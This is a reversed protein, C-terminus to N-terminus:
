AGNNRLRDPQEATPWPYAVGRVEASSYSIPHRNSARYAAASANWSCRLQDLGCHGVCVPPSALCRSVDDHRERAEHRLMAHSDLLLKGETWGSTHTGGSKLNAWRAHRVALEQIGPVPFAFNNPEFEEHELLKPAVPCGLRLLRGLSHRMALAELREPIAVSALHWEIRLHSVRCLAGSTLLFPLLTYELGEVDLKLYALTKEDTTEPPMVARLYSSFDITRVRFHAISANLTADDSGESPETTASKTAGHRGSMWVEGDQSAVAADGFTFNHRHAM